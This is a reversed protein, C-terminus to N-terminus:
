NQTPGQAPRSPHQGRTETTAPDPKSGRRDEATTRVNHEQGTQFRSGKQSTGPASVFLRKTSFTQQFRTRPTATRGSFSEDISSQQHMGPQCAGPGQYKAKCLYAGSDDNERQEAASRCQSLLSAALGAQLQRVERLNSKEAHVTM